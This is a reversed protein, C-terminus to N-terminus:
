TRRRAPESMKLAPVVHKRFFDSRKQDLWRLPALLVEPLPVEAAMVQALAAVADEDRKLFACALCKWFPSAGKRPDLLLARDLEALAEEFRERLVLAVGRCVYATYQHPNGAAMTELRVPTEPDPGEICMGIWELLSKIDIDDPDRERSRRFDDRARGLDGMELYVHGRGAYAQADNPDLELARSLNQIAREHEGLSCLAMGRLIYARADDPNQEILHDFNGLGRRSEDLKEYALSRLLYVGDLEPDLVLVRDFDAIAREYDKLKWHAIGRHAYVFTERADLALAHDFDEIARRYASLSSYAIGRLLYAGTYLPDLAQARDFDAIARQHENRSFYTMGRKGYIRALMPASFMPVHSVEEILDSAVTLFEQSALDAEFYQLLLRITRKVGTNVQSQPQERSISRLAHIIDEEQRTKHPITMIQEIASVHSAEDPLSFLQDVLSLALELWEDSFYVKKGGEAEIHELLRQYHNALARRTVQYEQASLQSLTHSLQKQVLDHYYHRGDLPDHQVFSLGILWRYLSTREEEPLYHFVDLDDQIFPRSFLAAHLVLQKRIQGQGAIWRLVNTVVDIGTDIIGQPDFALMSLSLPLGSSLQWIAAVRDAETIGRASLYTRTEDGTFHELPVSYMTKENPISREIPDRGAVVLVVNNSINAQLFPGLLWTAAETASPEFGDFFLIVRLGRKTRQSQSLVQTATLWNLDEVFARTLDGTPDHLQGTEGPLSRRQGWFSASSEEAVREYLGGIVPVGRVGSSGLELAQHSYAARAVKREDQRHQMTEKYCTFANEFAALPFGAMRLQAACQEMMHAPTGQRADVLATVCSDEFGAACAEDRFRSLLTSKGVGAIGWVSVINYAPHKPKLIHQVFFRLENTRGIFINRAKIQPRLTQKIFPM